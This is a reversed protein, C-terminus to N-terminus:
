DFRCGRHSRIVKNSVNQSFSRKNTWVIPDTTGMTQHQYELHIATAINLSQQGKPYVISYVTCCKPLDQHSQSVSAYGCEWHEVAFGIFEHSCHSQLLIFVECLHQTSLIKSRIKPCAFLCFFQSHIAFLKVNVSQRIVFSCISVHFIVPLICVTIVAYKSTAALCALLRM